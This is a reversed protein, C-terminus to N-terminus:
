QGTSARATAAAHERALVRRNFEHIVRAVYVRTEHYPPIGHHKDVAAPGANYAALALALNDHYRTLLADLYASGGQVNESAQFSDHVGLEVATTPMLQMLGRAGAHSVAHTNGDSEEKVVSALLDVDLNHAQGASSLIQHLDAPTLKLNRAPRAAVAPNATRPESPAPPPDPVTEITAIDAPPFEIYSQADSSTYLRVRGDVSEHHNCTLSFGNALTIREAARAASPVLAVLAATVAFQCIRRM